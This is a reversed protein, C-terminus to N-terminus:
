GLQTVTNALERDCSCVWSALKPLAHIETESAPVIDVLDVAGCQRYAEAASCEPIIFSGARPIEVRWSWKIESKTSM